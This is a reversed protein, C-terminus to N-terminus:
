RCAQWPSPPPLPSCSSPSATSSPLPPTLLNHPSCHTTSPHIPHSLFHSHFHFHFLLHHLNLGGRGEQRSIPPSNLNRHKRANPDSRPPSAHQRKPIRSSRAPPHRGSITRPQCQKPSAKAANANNRLHGMSKARSQKQTQQTRTVCTAWENPGAKANMSKTKATPIHTHAHSNIGIVAKEMEGNDSSSGNGRPTKDAACLRLFVLQMRRCHVHSTSSVHSLYVLM